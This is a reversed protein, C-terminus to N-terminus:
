NQLDWEQLASVINLFQKQFNIPTSFEHFRLFPSLGYKSIISMRVKPLWRSEAIQTYLIIKKKSFKYTIRNSTLFIGILQSDEGKRERLKYNPNIYIRYKGKVHIILGDHFFRWSIPILISISLWIILIGQFLNYFNPDTFSLFNLEIFFLLLVSICNLTLFIIWSKRKEKVDFGLTNLENKIHKKIYPTIRMLGIKILYFLLFVSVTFVSWNITLNFRYPTLGSISVGEEPILFVPYVISFHIIIIIAIISLYKILRNAIKRYESKIKNYSESINENYNIDLNKTSNNETLKHNGEM